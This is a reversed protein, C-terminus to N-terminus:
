FLKNSIVYHVLEATKTMCMKKLVQTRYTNITNVSLSLQNAIESVSKSEAILKLIEFERDSLNEHLPKNNSYSEVLLEAIQPTIYKKGGLVHKVAVVLEDSADQKTLYGAAGAKIARVAYQEVTYSSLFIIPTQPALEKLEMLIEIGSRGPMSIDSIIVDWNGSSAKKLLEAGEKAEVITAGAFENILIAVLGKRVITHDDAILIKMTKNKKIPSAFFINLTIFV